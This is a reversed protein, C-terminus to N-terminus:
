SKIKRKFNWPKFFKQFGSLSVRSLCQSFCGHELEVFDVPLLSVPALSSPLGQLGPGLPCHAWGPLSLAGCSGSSLRWMTRCVAALLSHAGPEDCPFMGQRGCASHGVPRQACPRGAQPGLGVAVPPLAAHVAYGCTFRSMKGSQAALQFLVSGGPVTVVPGAGQIGTAALTCAGVGEKLSVARFPLPLPSTQLIFHVCATDM